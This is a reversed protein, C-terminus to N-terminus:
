YSKKTRRVLPKAKKEKLREQEREKRDEEMVQDLEKQKAADLVRCSVWFDYWRGNKKVLTGLTAQRFENTFQLQTTAVALSRSLDPKSYESVVMTLNIAENFFDAYYALNDDYLLHVFVKMRTNPVKYILDRVTGENITKVEFRGLLEPEHESDESELSAQSYRSLTVKCEHGQSFTNAAVGLLVTSFLAMQLFRM